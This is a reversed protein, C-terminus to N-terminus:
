SVILAAPRYVEDGNSQDLEYTQIPGLANTKQGLLVAFGVPAALFLHIPGSTRYQDKAKKIAAVTKAVADAVQGPSTLDFDGGSGEVLVAARGTPLRGDQVMNKIASEPSGRFNVGVFLADASVDM